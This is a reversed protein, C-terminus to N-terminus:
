SWHYLKNNQNLFKKYCDALIANEAGRKCYLKNNKLVVTGFLVNSHSYVQFAQRGGKITNNMVTIKGKESSKDTGFIHFHCGISYSDRSLPSKTIIKNGKVVANSTDFLALAEGNEGTLKCNKITIGSHCKNPKKGDGITSNACIARSGKVTCNKITIKKCVGGNALKTGKLAPYTSAAAVDIQIQEEACDASSKGKPLITCNEITVNKCAVLEVTHGEYNTAKIYMDQLKINQAHTFHILTKLYGNKSESLWKGGKIVVNSLSGYNTKTRKHDFFGYNGSGYITAGTADIKWGSQLTTKGLHYTEGKVLKVFGDKELEAEFNKQDSDSYDDAESAHKQLYAVSHLTGAHVPCSTGWLAAVTLIGFVMQKILRVTKM